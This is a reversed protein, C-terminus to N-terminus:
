LGCTGWETRDPVLSRREVSGDLRLLMGNMLKLKKDVPDSPNFYYHLWHNEDAAVVMREGKEQYIREFRKCTDGVVQDPGVFCHLPCWGYSFIVPRRPRRHVEPDHPCEFIRQDRVYGATLMAFPLLPVGLRVWVNPRSHVRGTSTPGTGRGGEYDGRYMAVAQGIQRLNSICVTQRGKERAPAMLVYVIAALVALIAVVVLVEILTWGRYQRM